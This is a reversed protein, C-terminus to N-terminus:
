WEIVLVERRSSGGARRESLRNTVVQLILHQAEEVTYKESVRAIAELSGEHLKDFM